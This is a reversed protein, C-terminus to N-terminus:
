DEKVKLNLAKKMHRGECNVRSNFSTPQGKDKMKAVIVEKHRTAIEEESM